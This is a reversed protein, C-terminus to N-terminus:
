YGEVWYEIKPPVSRAVLKPRIWAQEEDSWIVGIRAKKVFREVIIDKLIMHEDSIDDPTNNWLKLVLKDLEVFKKAVEKDTLEECKKAYSRIENTTM